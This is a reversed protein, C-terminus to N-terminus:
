QSFNIIDKGLKSKELTESITCLSKWLRSYNIDKNYLSAQQHWKVRHAGQENNPTASHCVSLFAKHLRIKDIKYIRLGSNPQDKQEKKYNNPKSRNNGASNYQGLRKRDLFGNM